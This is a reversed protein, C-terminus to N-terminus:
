GDWELVVGLADDPNNYLLHYADLTQEWPLRHTILESIRVRGDILMQAADEMCEERSQDVRIGAVLVKNMFNDGHLPLPGGQYKAILHIAGGPALMQQAQEFSRIGMNGGVCEVVLDAGIGETLRKVEAVSDTQSVNIVGDPGLKGAIECRLPYADVVIVQGPNRERIIQACLSGVIGQGLIVATQGSQIPSTRMWMVSSTTLPLFTAAEYTLDDSLAFARKRRGSANALVYQAHPGNVMVRQGVSFNEVGPGIAVIEGADSYGMIDPSVAEELVYRRFLESGRSILSRKVEVLMQEPGPEPREVEVMQVNGFGELKELQQMRPM